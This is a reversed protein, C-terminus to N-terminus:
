AGRSTDTSPSASVAAARRRADLDDAQPDSQMIKRGGLVGLLGLPVFPISGILVLTGGLRRKGSGALILGVASIALLTVLIAAFIHLFTDGGAAYENALFFLVIISNAIVGIIALGM